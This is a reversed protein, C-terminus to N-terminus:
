VQKNRHDFSENVSLDQSFEVAEDYPKDKYMTENQLILGFCVSYLMVYCLMRDFFLTYIM